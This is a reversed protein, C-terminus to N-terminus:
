QWRKDQIWTGALALSLSFVIWLISRAILRTWLESQSGFYVEVTQGAFFVLGIVGMITFAMFVRHKKVFPNPPFISGIAIGTLVGGVIAIMVAPITFVTWFAFVPTM